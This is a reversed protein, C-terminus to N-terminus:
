LPSSSVSPSLSPAISPHRMESRYELPSSTPTLFRLLSHLDPLVHLSYSFWTTYRLIYGIITRKGYRSLLESGRRHISGVLISRYRM